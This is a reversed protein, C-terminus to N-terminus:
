KLPQDDILQSLYEEASIAATAKSKGKSLRNQWLITWNWRWSMLLLEEHASWM